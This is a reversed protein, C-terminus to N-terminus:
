KHRGGDTCGVMFFIAALAVVCLLFLMPIQRMPLFIGHSRACYM